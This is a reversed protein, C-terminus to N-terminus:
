SRIVGDYDDFIIRNERLSIKIQVYYRNNGLYIRFELLNQIFLYFIKKIFYKYLLM